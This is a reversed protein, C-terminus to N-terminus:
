SELDFDMFLNLASNPTFLITYDILIDDQNFLFVESKLLIDLSPDKFMSKFYPDAKIYSFRQAMGMITDGNFSHMVEWYSGKEINTESLIPFRNLSLYTDTILLPKENGLYLRRYYLFPDEKYFGFDLMEDPCHRKELVIKEISMALQNLKFIDVISIIQDFYISPVNIVLPVYRDKILTILGQNILSTFIDNMENLSLGSLKTLEEPTPLHRFNSFVQSQIGNKLAFEVQEGLSQKKRRDLKLEFM